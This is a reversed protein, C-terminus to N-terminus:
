AHPPKIALDYRRERYQALAYDRSRIEDWGGRHAPVHRIHERHRHSHALKDYAPAYCARFGRAQRPAIAPASPDDAPARESGLSHHMASGPRRFLAATALARRETRGYGQRASQRR